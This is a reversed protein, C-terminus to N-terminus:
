LCFQFPQLLTLVAYWLAPATAVAGFALLWPRQWRVALVGWVVLGVAVLGLLGEFTLRLHAVSEANACATLNPIVVALCGVFTIM